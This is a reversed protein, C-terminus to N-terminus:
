RRLFLKATTVMRNLKMSLMVLKLMNIKMYRAVLFGGTMGGAMAIAMLKSTGRKIAFTRYQNKMYIRTAKLEAETQRIQSKLRSM